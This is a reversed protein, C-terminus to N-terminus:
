RKLDWLNAKDSRLLYNYKKLVDEFSASQKLDKLIEIVTNQEIENFIKDWDIKDVLGKPFNSIFPYVYGLGSPDPIIMKPNNYLIDEVANYINIVIDQFDSKMNNYEPLQNSISMLRKEIMKRNAHGPLLYKYLNELMIYKSADDVKSFNYKDYMSNYNIYNINSRISEFATEYSTMNYVVIYSDAVVTENNSNKKIVKPKEFYVNYNRDVKFIVKSSKSIFRFIGKAKERTTTEDTAKERLSKYALSDKAYQYEIRKDETIYDKEPRLYKKTRKAKKRSYYRAETKMNWLGTKDSRSLYDLENIFNNIKDVINAPVRKIFKNTQKLKKLFELFLFQVEVSIDEIDFDEDLLYKTYPIFGHETVIGSNGIYDYLYKRDNEKVESLFRIWEMARLDKGEKFLKKLINFVTRMKVYSYDEDKFITRKSGYLRGQTVSIYNKHYYKQSQDIVHIIKIYNDQLNSSGTLSRRYNNEVKYRLQNDNLHILINIIIDNVSGEVVIERWNKGIEKLEEFYKLYEM